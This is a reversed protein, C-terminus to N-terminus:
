SIQRYSPTRDQFSAARKKRPQLAAIPAARGERSPQRSAKSANIWVRSACPPAASSFGTQHPAGVPKGVKRQAVPRKGSFMARAISPFAEKGLMQNHAKCLLRLNRADWSSGGKAWPRIHDIELHATQNCRNGSAGTYSCRHDSSAKVERAVAMPVYRTHKKPATQRPKKEVLLCKLAKKLVLAQDKESLVKQAEQILAKLEEDLIIKLYEEQPKSEPFHRHLVQEIDRRSKGLVEPLLTAANEKTVFPAIM